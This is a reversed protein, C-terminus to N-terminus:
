PQGGLRLAVNAMIAETGAASIPSCDVANRIAELYSAAVARGSGTQLAPQLAEVFACSLDHVAGLRHQAAKQRIHDLHLLFQVPHREILDTPLEDLLMLMETQVLLNQDRDMKVTGLKLEVM